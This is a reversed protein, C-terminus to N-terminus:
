DGDNWMWVRWSRSRWIPGFLTIIDNHWSGGCFPRSTLPFRVPEHRRLGGARPPRLLQERAAGRGAPGQVESRAGDSAPPSVTM